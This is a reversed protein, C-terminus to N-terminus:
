WEIKIYILIVTNFTMWKYCPKFSQGVARKLLTKEDTNFTMWKYCPKFCISVYEICVKTCFYQLDDM